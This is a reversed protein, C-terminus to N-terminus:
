SVVIDIGPLLAENHNASRYTNSRALIQANTGGREAAISWYSEGAAVHHLHNDEPRRGPPQLQRHDEAQQATETDPRTVHSPRTAGPHTAEAGAPQRDHSNIGGRILGDVPGLVGEGFATLPRDRYHDQIRQGAADYTQHVGHGVDRATQVGADYTQHIGHGLDRATQVGTFEGTSGNRTQYTPATSQNRLEQHNM